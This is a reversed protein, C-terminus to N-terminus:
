KPILRENHHYCENSISVMLIWVWSSPIWLSGMKMGIRKWLWCYCCKFSSQLFLHINKCDRYSHWTTRWPCFPDVHLIIQAFPFQSPLCLIIGAISHKQMEVASLLLVHLYFIVPSISSSCKVPQVTSETALVDKDNLMLFLFILSLAHQFLSPM